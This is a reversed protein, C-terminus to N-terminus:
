QGGLFSEGKGNYSAHAFSMSDVRQAPYKDAEAASSWEVAYSAVLVVTDRQAHHVTPM